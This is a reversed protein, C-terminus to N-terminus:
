AANNMLYYQFDSPCDRLYKKRLTEIDHRYECNSAIDKCLKPTETRVPPFLAYSFCYLGEKGKYKWWSSAPCHLCDSVDHKLLGLLKAKHERMAKLIEPTMTGRPAQYDLKGDQATLRINRTKIEPLLFHKM